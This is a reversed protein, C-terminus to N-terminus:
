SAPWALHLFPFPSSISHPPHQPSPTLSLSLRVSGWLEGVSAMVWELYKAEGDHVLVPEKRQFKDKINGRAVITKYEEFKELMLPVFNLLVTRTQYHDEADVLIDKVRELVLDWKALGQEPVDEQESVGAIPYHIPNPRGFQAYNRYYNISRVHGKMERKLVTDTPRVFMASYTAQAAPVMNAGYTSTFEHQTHWDSERTALAAHVRSALLHASGIPGTEMDNRLDALADNLANVTDPLFNCRALLGSRYVQLKAPEPLPTTNTARMERQLATLLPLLIGIDDACMEMEEEGADALGVEALKLLLEEEDEIKDAILLMRARHLLNWAAVALQGMATYKNGYGMKRAIRRLESDPSPAKLPKVKIEPEPEPEEEEESEETEPEPTEAKKKGRRRRFMSVEYMEPRGEGYAWAPTSNRHWSSRLVGVTTNMPTTTRLQQELVTREDQKMGDLAGNWDVGSAASRPESREQRPAVRPSVPKEKWRWVRTPSSLRAVPPKQKHQSQFSQLSLQEVARLNVVDRGLANSTM